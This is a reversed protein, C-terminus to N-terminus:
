DALMAMVAGLEITNRQFSVTSPFDDRGIVEVPGDSRSHMCVLTATTTGVPVIAEHHIHRAISYADGEVYTIRSSVTLDVRRTSKILQNESSRKYKNGLYQVEYVPLGGSQNPTVNYLVNTLEGQLIRSVVVTDHNHIMAPVGTLQREGEPWLHFRWDEGDVTRLHCVFFGHPHVLCDQDASALWSKLTARLQTTSIRSLNAINLMAEIEAHM